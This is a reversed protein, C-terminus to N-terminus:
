VLMFLELACEGLEGLEADGLEGAPLSMGKGAGKEAFAKPKIQRLTFPTGEEVEVGKGGFNHGKNQCNWVNNHYKCTPVIQCVEATASADDTYYVHAGVESNRLCRGNDDIICCQKIDNKNFCNELEQLHSSTGHDATTKTGHYVRTRRFKGKGVIAGPETTRGIKQPVTKTKRPWWWSM